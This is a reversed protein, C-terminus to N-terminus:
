RHTYAAIFGEGCYTITNYSWDYSSAPQGDILYPLQGDPQRQVLVWRVADASIEALKPDKTISYLLSHFVGGNVASAIIYPSESLHGDYYGYGLAGRDKGSAIVWGRSGGRGESRPDDRCGERVFKALRTMAEGYRKRREAEVRKSTVALATSATGADALYIQGSAGADGWYGAEGGRSTIVSQQQAVLTDCWRVAERCYAPNGTVEHGAMLARALNGNIWILWSTEDTNKLKGSGVDLTMIWDCVDVLYPQLREQLEADVQGPTTPEVAGVQPLWLSAVIITACATFGRRSWIAMQGNKNPKLIDEECTSLPRRM